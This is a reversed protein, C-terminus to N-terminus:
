IASMSRWTFISIVFGTSGELCCECVLKIFKVKIFTKDQLDLSNKVPVYTRALIISKLVINKYPM